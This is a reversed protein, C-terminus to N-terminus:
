YGSLIEGARTFDSEHVAMAVSPPLGSAEARVLIPAIRGLMAVQEAHDAPRRKLATRVARFAERDTVYLSTASAAVAVLLSPLLLLICDFAFAAMRRVPSALPLGVLRSSPALAADSVLRDTM